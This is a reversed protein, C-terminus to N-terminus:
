GGSTAPAGGTQSAQTGSAPATAGSSSSQSSTASSSAPTTAQTTAMSGTGTSGTATSGTSGSSTAGATAAATATSTAAMTTAGATAVASPSVTMIPTTASAELSSLASLFASSDPAHINGSARGPNSPRVTLFGVAVPQPMVMGMGAALREIRQDDALGSVNARLLENRSQLASGREIARGISTGLKLVEVQMAVIGVLMVGLMPIWARGRVARDVLAHDPLSRLFTHVRLALAAGPGRDSRRVRRESRRVRKRAPAPIASARATAATGRGGVPGSVRRPAAAGAQRRVARRHGAAANSAAKPTTAAPTV